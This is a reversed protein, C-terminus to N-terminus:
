SSRVHSFLHTKQFLYFIICAIHVKALHVEKAANGENKIVVFSGSHAVSFNTGIIAIDTELM